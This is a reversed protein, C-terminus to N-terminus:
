RPKPQHLQAMRRAFDSLVALIGKDSDYISYWGQYEHPPDGILPSEPKWISGYPELPRAEGAWAWFNVGAMPSGAQAAQYVKDLIFSYYKDRVLAPKAPDFSGKDRAIGFEELVVPKALQKAKKLHDNFYALAQKKAKGYTKDHKLPDYWGWNQVWLHVTAYDINPHSNNKLFDLGNAQPWPTEGESGASVLHNTDLSKILAATQAIWKNMAEAQARGRPENALQWAMIAPDDKYAKNSYSNTRTILFNLFQRFYGKAKENVYFKATFDQYVDWSGAPQPPPYPIPGEGAWALYQAMGGSWPWFNNLVVVARMGRKGMENLLFDLGDLLDDNYVGQVPQLAPVIRWPESDPGESAGLIRLNDIGLSKMRDLERVLRDRGGGKGQSALNMGTWFNTGVFYYPKGDVMFQNGKVRVFGSVAADDAWSRCAFVALLLIIIQRKM